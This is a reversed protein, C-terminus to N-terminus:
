ISVPINLSAESSIEFWGGLPGGLRSQVPTDVTADFSGDGDVDSHLMAHLTEGDRSARSLPVQVNTSEGAQLLTSAGLIVGPGNDDEHIVLFGPAELVVSGVITNGPQQEVVVVMNEEARMGSVTSTNEEETISPTPDNATFAYVGIGLAGLVLVGIIYKLMYIEQNTYFM